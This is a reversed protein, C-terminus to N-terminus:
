GVMGPLYYYYRTVGSDSSAANLRGAKASMSNDFAALNAETLALPKTPRSTVTAERAHGRKRKGIM